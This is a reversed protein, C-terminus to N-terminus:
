GDHQVHERLLQNLERVDIPKLVFRDIGAQTARRRAEATNLGTLAILYPQRASLKRIRSAVTFGDIDPLTLDLLVSDPEERVAMSIATEGDHAVLVTHGHMELLMKQIVSADKNDDVLLVRLGGNGAVDTRAAQEAQKRHLKEARYRQARIEGSSMQSSYRHLTEILLRRDLPKTLYDDYGAALCKERDGQMAYATMAIIPTTFGNERLERAAAYGDKVPMQVDMLVVDVSRGESELAALQDIAQQGNTAVIVDGGAEEVFHQALHRVERRDDVILIRADLRPPPLFSGSASFIRNEDRIPEIFEVGELPGSDITVTFTSGHGPRSTASIEGGLVETLRRSITLGLGTGGFERTISADGQTFPRFLKPQQDASIGIGTDCIDFQLQQTDALARVVLRVSGSETFKIANGVLNVLIQRLRTADTRITKPISGDFEVILPLQKEQARVDMLLRVDAIVSAPSVDQRTLTLKGAEIKSLDLIDNIIDILFRGNRRITEVCHLNDPDTLHKSLLDAYGLIATMPTRIEHSMNALFESKAQNAADSASRAKLLAAEVTKRETIDIVTGIARRAVRKGDRNIFLTRGKMRVWRVEGSPKVIRHDVACEGSGAPHISQRMAEAVLSRDEPHVLEPVEGPKLKLKADRPLGLIEKMERSWVVTDTKFNVDYTGFGAARAAIRLREESIRLSQEDRRRDSIDMGSPILHTVNGDDDFMPVVQFDITLLRNGAIRIDVDHRPIQGAAAKCISERLRQQVSRSYGFWYSDALNRGLVDEPKLGAVDLLPRNAEILTGDVTCVGVFAFLSDLTKRLFQESARVLREQEKRESIDKVVSSVGIVSGSEDLVPHYSVLWTRDKEPNARTRGTVELDCVPQKSQMVQRYVGAISEVLDAPLIEHMLRGSHQELPVGNIEALERNVSVYRLDRDVFGLGIGAHQYVAHLQVLGRRADVESRRLETVDSFTVIMGDRRGDQTRYPLVRRVFARGDHLEVSHEMVAPSDDLAGPPPLRPMDVANHTLHWLPRGVDSGILNYIHTIAPTFRRICCDDDLFVVAIDTSRFLNELDSHAVALARDAVQVQQRAARLESEAASSHEDTSVQLELRVAPEATIRLEPLSQPVLERVHALLKQPIEEASLLWDRHANDRLGDHRSDIRATAPAQTITLGGRQRIAAFGAAFDIGTGGADIAVAHRSFSAALSRFFRDARQSAAETDSPSSSKRIDTGRIEVVTGPSAVYVHDAFLCMEAAIVSVPMDTSSELRDTLVGDPLTDTQDLIVFAAGCGSPMQELITCLLERGNGSLAVGVVWNPVHPEHGGAPRDGGPPNHLQLPTSNM